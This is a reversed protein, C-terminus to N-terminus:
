PPGVPDTRETRCRVARDPNPSLDSRHNALLVNLATHRDAEFTRKFPVLIDVHIEIKWLWCQSVAFSRVAKPNSYEKLLTRLVTYCAAPEVAQPLCLSSGFPPYKRCILMEDNGPLARALAQNHSLLTSSSILRQLSFKSLLKTKELYITRLRIPNYTSHFKFGM